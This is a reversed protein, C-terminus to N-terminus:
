NEYRNKTGHLTGHQAFTPINIIYLSYTSTGFLFPPTHFCLMSVLSRSLSESCEFFFSTEINQKPTFHCVGKSIFLLRHFCLFTFFHLHVFRRDEQRAKRLLPNTNQNTSRISFVLLTIHNNWWATRSFLPIDPICLEYNIEPESSQTPNATWDIEPKRSNWEANFTNECIAIEFWFVAIKRCLTFTTVTPTPTSFASPCLGHM